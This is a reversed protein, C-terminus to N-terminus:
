FPIDEGIKAFDVPEEDSSPAVVKGLYEVKDAWVEVNYIKQGDKNTYSTKRLVGDIGVQSGKFLYDHHREASEGFAKVDFFDAKKEEGKKVYRDVALVMRCVAKQSGAAYILEPDKALRGILIVKNM